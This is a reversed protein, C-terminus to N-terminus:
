LLDPESAIKSATMTTNPDHREANHGLLTHNDIIGQMAKERGKCASTTCQCGEALGGHKDRKEVREEETGVCKQYTTGGSNWWRGDLIMIYYHLNKEVGYIIPICQGMNDGGHAEGTAGGQGPIRM